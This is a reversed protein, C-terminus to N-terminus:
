GNNNDLSLYAKSSQWQESVEMVVATVLRLCSDENAFIKAAKTRQKVSYFGLM